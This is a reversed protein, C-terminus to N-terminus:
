LAQRTVSADGGVGAQADPHDLSAVVHLAAIPV